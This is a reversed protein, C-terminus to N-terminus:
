YHYKKRYIILFTTSLIFAGIDAITVSYWIGEIGFILPLILVCSCQFVLTRAFSIIASIIGNNLATFFSSAYINFFAFIFVFSYIRFAHVTLQYLEENYGVFLKSLPIALLEALGFFFLGAFAMTIVSKKFVNKLESHNQAGYNYGIVPATGIAYGIAVAIYIFGVYMIVGYASVGDEGLYKMLQANFIMGVISSSINSLLESSGNTCAKLIYKFNIKTWKLRLLSNNPRLFYICPIVGGIVQGIVTASAAGALGWRFVGMFLADLIMNTVGACITVILGIKPKEATNLFSQFVNQLMFTVGFGSIIAGYLVCHEVMDESAGLLRAMPEMVVAGLIGVILGVIITFEIMMSFIKNAKENDKEGLTKAVLASGGTGIMFGVGGIIMLWPMILNLSAFETKGVYNSVFFGDVVGYISTFIMMMIPPLVLRYLKSYTFHESLQIRM